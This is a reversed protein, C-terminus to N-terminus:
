SSVAKLFTHTKTQNPKKKPQNTPQNTSKPNKQKNTQKNKLYFNTFVNSNWLNNFKRLRHLNKLILGWKGNLQIVFYECYFKVLFTISFVALSRLPESLRSSKREIYCLAILSKSSLFYRNGTWATLPWMWM